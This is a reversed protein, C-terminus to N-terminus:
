QGNCASRCRAYSDLCQTSAAVQLPIDGQIAAVAQQCLAALDQCIDNCDAFDTRKCGVSLVPVLAVLLILWRQM